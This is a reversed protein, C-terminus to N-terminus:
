GATTHLDAVSQQLTAQIKPFLEVLRGFLLAQNSRDGQMAAIELALAAKEMDDVGFISSSGKLSHAARRLTVQDDSGVLRGIEELRAPTDALYADILEVVAEPGLESALMSITENQM